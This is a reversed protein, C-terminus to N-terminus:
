LEPNVGQWGRPLGYAFSLHYGITGELKHAYKFHHVVITITLTDDIDVSDFAAVTM